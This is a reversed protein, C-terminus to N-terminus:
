RAEIEATCCSNKDAVTQVSRNQWSYLLNKAEFLYIKKNFCYRCKNESLLLFKTSYMVSEPVCNASMRKLKQHEHMDIKLQHKHMDIELQHEHQLNVHVFVLQLDVHM